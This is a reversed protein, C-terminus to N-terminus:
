ARPRRWEWGLWRSECPKGGKEKKWGRGVPSDRGEKVRGELRRRRQQQQSNKAPAPTKQNSSQAKKREKWHTPRRAKRTITHPGGGPGRSRDRSWQLLLNNGCRKRGQCRREAKKEVNINRQDGLLNKKQGAPNGNEPRVLSTRKEAVVFV